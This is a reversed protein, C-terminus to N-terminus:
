RRRGGGKPMILEMVSFSPRPFRTSDIGLRTLDAEIAARDDALTQLEESSINLNRTVTVLDAYTQDILTQSVTSGAFLANFSDQIGQAAAPDSDYSGDALAKVLDDAVTAMAQRDIRFGTQAISRLDTKLAQRQADTVTSGSVVAQIDTRFKQLDATLQADQVMGGGRPGGGRNQRGLGQMGRATSVSGVDASPPQGFRGGGFGLPTLLARGEMLDCNIVTERPARAKRRDRPKRLGSWVALKTGLRNLSFPGM